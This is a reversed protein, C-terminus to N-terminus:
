KSQENGQITLAATGPTASLVKNGFVIEANIRLRTDYGRNLM